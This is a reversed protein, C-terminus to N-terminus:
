TPATNGLSKGKKRTFFVAVLIVAFLAGGGMFWTEKRYQWPIPDDPLKGITDDVGSVLDALTKNTTNAPKRLEEDLELCASCVEELAASASPYGGGNTVDEYGQASLKNKAAEARVGASCYTVIRTSKEGHALEFVDSKWNPPSNQVDLRNACSIHSSAFESASRVDLVLCGLLDSGPMNPGWPKLTLPHRFIIEQSNHRPYSTSFYPPFKLALFPARNTTVAAKTPPHAGNSALLIPKPRPKPFFVATVCGRELYIIVQQDVV